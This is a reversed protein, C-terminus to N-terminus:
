WCELVDPQVRCCNQLYKHLNRLSSFFTFNEVISDHTFLTSSLFFFSLPFFFTLPTLLTFSNNICGKRVSTGFTFCVSYQSLSTDITGKLEGNTSVILLNFFIHGGLVNVAATVLVALWVSLSKDLSCSLLHFKLFYKIFLSLLNHTSLLLM